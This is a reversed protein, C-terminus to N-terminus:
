KAKGKRPAPRKKLAEEIKEEFREPPQAGVLRAGNVFFTPTGSAKVRTGEESDARVRDAFAHDDLAKRFRPMDLHLDQAYRELDERALQHQNEFLKDHYAWFRGQAHAAMSAEAALEAYAHFPLPQHMYVVRLKGKYRALLAKVTGQVRGCFPCQFDSFEVLTVPASTPGSVPADAPIKVEYVDAEIRPLTERIDGLITPYLAPLKVGRALLKDARQLEEDIAATFASLPQAGVLERGNIFSTPTGSTGHAHAHKADADVQEKIHPAASDAAFRKMDLGLERAYRTLSAADLSAQNAFLKDHYPWFKGQAHAAMAARAAPMANDHFPLPLNRWVVRVKDGYKDRVAQLTPELRTCFPCQFDSFVVLTIRAHRPGQVPSWAAVEIKRYVAAPAAGPSPAAEVTGGIVGGQAGDEDGTDDDGGEDELDAHAARDEGDDSDGSGIIDGVIQDFGRGKKVQEVIIPAEHLAVKQLVRM